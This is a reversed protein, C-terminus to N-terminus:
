RSFLYRCITLPILVVMAAITAVILLKWMASFFIPAAASPLFALVGATSFVFIIFIYFQTLPNKM